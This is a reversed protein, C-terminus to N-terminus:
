ADPRGTRIRATFRALDDDSDAVSRQLLTVGLLYRLDDLRHLYISGQEVDLVLRDLVEGTVSRLAPVLQRRIEPYREAVTRYLRRRPDPALRLAFHSLSRDDLLDASALVGDPGALALFHLRKPHLAESLVRARIDESSGAEAAEDLFTTPVKGADPLPTEDFRPSRRHWGGLNASSVGARERLQDCIRALDADVTHVGPRETILPEADDPYRQHCIVAVLHQRVLVQDCIIAGVPGQALVRVLAGTMAQGLFGDLSQTLFYLRQSMRQLARSLDPQGTVPHAHPIRDPLIFDFDLVGSSRHALYCMPASGAMVAACADATDQLLHAPAHAAFRPQPLGTVAPGPPQPRGAIAPDTTTAEPVPETPPSGPTPLPDPTTM